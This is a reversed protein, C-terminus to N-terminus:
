FSQFVKKRLAILDLSNFNGDENIDFCEPINGKTDSLLTNKLTLMDLIDITMNGDVDGLLYADVTVVFEATYGMYNVTILQLGEINKNFGTVTAENINKLEYTNDIYAVVIRGGTLDLDEGVTYTSKTPKQAVVIFAIPKEIIEIEFSTKFDGYIVTITQIGLKTNDFGYVTLDTLDILQYAGSEYNVTLVGGSLDLNETKEFYNLKFPPNHISVSRIDGLEGNSNYYIDANLLTENGTTEVKIKKWEEDTGNFLVKKISVCNLFVNKGISSVTKPITISTLNKCNYFAGYPIQTANTIIVTKLSSPIYYYGSSSSSYYQLTTGSSSSSRYGFIYGFVADYTGSATRSSGVFPLTISKLSTCGYFASNGISTVSDPITISTLSTCGSFASSGISTVGDPIAISTLSKCDRFAYDGISTVGNGITIGTLNTCYQFGSEGISIVSDPITVSELKTCGSFALSGINTVPYSGFYSPILVDGSITTNCGIITAKSNSVAFMFDGISNLIKINYTTTKEGFTVTIPLNDSGYSTDFGSIMEESIPITIPEIITGNFTVTIEGGTVDLTDGVYFLDKPKSSVAISNVVGRLTTVNFSTELGDVTVTVEHNGMAAFTEYDTSVSVKPDDMKYERVSGDKYTVEVMGTSVNLGNVGNKVDRAEASTYYTKPTKLVKISSAETNYKATIGLAQLQLEEDPDAGAFNFRLFVEKTPNDELVLNINEQNVGNPWATPEGFTSSEGYHNNWEVKVPAIVQYWESGDKSADVEIRAAKDGSAWLYPMFTKAGDNLDFKLVVRNSASTLKILWYLEDYKSLNPQVFKEFYHPSEEDKEYTKRIDARAIFEETLYVQSASATIGSTIPLASVVMVVCILVSLMKQINKL